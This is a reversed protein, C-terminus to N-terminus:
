PQIYFNNWNGDKLEYVQRKNLRFDNGQWFEFYFPKFSYGGWYEPRKLKSTSNFITEYQKKVEDYSEIEKSQASSIAISNKERARKNFHDNSFNSDVKTIKAKIRVQTYSSSWFFNASIQNNTEFSKAKPSEYNSFFIWEDDIIYKINVYRSQVENINKDYSSICIAEINKQGLDIANDYFKKFLEYPKAKNPKIFEIM